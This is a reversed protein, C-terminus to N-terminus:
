QQGSSIAATGVVIPKQSARVLSVMLLFRGDHSVEALSAPRKFEFLKVPMGVTLSPSTRVPITMMSREGDMYYLQRGDASWRPPSSVKPAALEPDSTMPLPAVYLGRRPVRGGLFAFARGDPSVRMGLANFHPPLLPTPSAGATLSLQFIRFRGVTQREAYAVARGGPMVDM